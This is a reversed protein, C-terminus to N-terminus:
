PACPAAPLIPECGGDQPAFGHACADDPIGAPQCKGPVPELEGPACAVASGGGAGSPAESSLEEASCGAIGLAVALILRLSAPKARARSVVEFSCWGGVFERFTTLPLRS